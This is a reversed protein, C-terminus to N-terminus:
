DRRSSLALSPRAQKLAKRLANGAADADRWADSQAALMAAPKCDWSGPAAHVARNALRYCCLARAYLVAANRLVDWDIDRINAADAICGAALLVAREAEAYAPATEAAHEVFQVFQGHWAPLPDSSRVTIPKRASTAM